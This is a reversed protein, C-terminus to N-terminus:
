QSVGSMWLGIQERSANEALAEGMIKGEYIVAIRDSLSFVEDLDESILLIGAGRETEQLLRQHVYEMAGVDLGRTPQVAIIIAPNGALERALMVKQLNGGSLSKTVADRGATSINYARILEDTYQNIKKSKTLGYTQFDVCSHSELIMNEEVSLDMLLGTGMRDEPIRAMNLGIASSPHGFRLPTNNIKIVGQVPNRMGFLVESLERQGNGSIGAMGLIEKQRVILSLNNVAALKRDNRVDLNQIELVPPGPEFPKKSVNGNLERGVMLNALERATTERTQRKAVVRGARL